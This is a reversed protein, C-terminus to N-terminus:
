EETGMLHGFLNSLATGQATVQRNSAGLLYGQGLDIHTTASIALFYSTITTTSDFLVVKGAKDSWIDGGMIRAKKGSAPSWLVAETNGMWVTNLPIYKSVVRQTDFSAGNWVWNESGVFFGAKQQGDVGTSTTFGSNNGWSAFNGDVVATSNMATFRIPQTTGATLSTVNARFFKWGSVNFITSAGSSTVLSGSNGASGLNDGVGVKTSWNIGDGSVQYTYALASGTGGYPTVLVTSYGQIDMQFNQGNATLVTGSIKVPQLSVVAQQEAHLQFAMIFFLFLYKM